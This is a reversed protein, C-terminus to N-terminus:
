QESVGKTSSTMNAFKGDACGADLVKIKGGNSPLPFPVLMGETTSRMFEHQRRLRDIEEIHHPLLYVGETGSFVKSKASAMPMARPAEVLTSTGAM